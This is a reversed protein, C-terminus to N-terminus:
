GARAEEYAAVYRRAIAEWSCREAVERGCRGLRAGLTADDLLRGIADALASPDDPPVLLGTEFDEVVEPVGGVRSAIVPRGAAMAELLVLGFAEWRSPAIVIEAGALLRRVEGAPRVGLFRVAGELGLQRCLSECRPRTRGGGAFLLDLAPHRRRVEAFARLLVDQGKLPVFSAVCLLYRRPHDYGAVCAFESADVGNGVVKGKGAVSAEVAAAEALLYRSNALVLRARRLTAGTLLRTPWGRTEHRVVDSGHVNVVFAAGATGAVFPLVANEGIYHLNVVDPVLRALLRRYRVVAIVGLVPSLAARGLSTALAAGGAGRVVRPMCVPLRMVPVDTGRDARARWWRPENAVITVEHDLKRLAAALRAVATELGGTHPPASNPLLVIRM